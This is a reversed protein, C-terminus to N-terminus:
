KYGMWADVTCLGFLTTIIRFFRDQTIWHKELRLEIQRVQNMLNIIHSRSFNLYAVRPIDVKRDHTILNEDKYKEEYAYEVKDYTSGAGENIVIPHSQLLMIHLGNCM